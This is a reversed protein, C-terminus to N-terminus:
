LTRWDGSLRSNELWKKTTSRADHEVHFLGEGPLNFLDATFNIHRRAVPTASRPSVAHISEASNLFLVLTNPEYRTTSCVDVKEMDVEMPLHDAKIRREAPHMRSPEKAKCVQLDSGTSDDNDRFYLLAAYLETPRDVHPGRVTRPQESYNIYFQCELSVDCERNRANDGREPYRMSTQLQDLPKQFHDEIVPHKKKIIDGLLTVVDQYFENSVHYTLFKKWLPSIKKTDLAYCAPYDYWTDKKTRGNLIVSPDPYEEALQNFM